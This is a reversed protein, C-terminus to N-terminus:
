SREKLFVNQENLKLKECNLILSLERLKSLKVWYQPDSDPIRHRISGQTLYGFNSKEPDRIESKPDRIGFGYKQFSLSL